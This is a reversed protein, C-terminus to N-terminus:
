LVQPLRGSALFLYSWCRAHWAAARRKTSPRPRTCPLAAPLRAHRPVAFTQPHSPQTDHTNLPAWVGRDPVAAFPPPIPMQAPLTAVPMPTHVRARGAALACARGQPGSCGSVSLWPLLCRLPRPWARPKM